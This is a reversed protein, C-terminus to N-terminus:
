PFDAATSLIEAWVSVAAIPVCFDRVCIAHIAAARLIAETTAAQLTLPEETTWQLKQLHMNKTIRTLIAPVPLISILWIMGAEERCLLEWLTIGNLM